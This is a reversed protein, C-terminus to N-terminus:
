GSCFLSPCALAPSFYHQIFQELDVNINIQFM